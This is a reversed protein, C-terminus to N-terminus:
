RYLCIFIHDCKRVVFIKLIYLSKKFVNKRENWLLISLRKLIYSTDKYLLFSKKFFMREKM